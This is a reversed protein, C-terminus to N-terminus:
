AASHGSIEPVENAQRAQRNAINKQEKLYNLFKQVQLDHSLNPDNKSFALFKRAWHAYFRIYKENVLSKSRLYEQFEPLVMKRM